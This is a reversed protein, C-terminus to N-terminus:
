RRRRGGSSPLSHCGSSYCGDTGIYMGVNSDHLTVNVASNSNHCSLQCSVGTIGMKNHTSPIARANGYDPGYVGDVGGVPHCQNCGFSGTTNRTNPLAVTVAGSLEISEGLTRNVTYHSVTANKQRTADYTGYSLNLSTVLSNNHCSVCTRGPDSTDYVRSGGFVSGPYHQYVQTANFNNNVHCYDCSKPNMYGAPHKVPETGDGHCAWCAKSGIDSLVSTNTANSNLNSHASYNTFATKNVRRNQPPGNPESATSAHCKLCDPGGAESQSQNLKHVFIASTIDSPQDKGHCNKCRADSWDGAINISHNQFPIGDSSNAPVLGTLNLIEPPIPNLLNGKYNYNGSAASGKYHCNACWYGGTLSQNEANTGQILSSNGLRSANHLATKGHCYYCSSLQSTNDWYRPQSGNWLAGSYSNNSHLVPTQVLMAASFNPMGAGQHCSTCNVASTNTTAWTNDQQLYRVPHISDSVNLHCSSCATGTSNHRELNKITASGGSGHCNTCYTANPLPSLSAKYLTGNHIRGTSHCDKCTPNTTPYNASHNAITRNASDTFPFSSVGSHCNDCYPTTNQQIAMDNKTGYHSVSQDGGNAGNYVNSSAGDPDYASIIMGTTNHCAYCSSAAPTKISTGNWYHQTVNLITTNPTYNFNQGGQVHCDVCNYPTKYRTPHGSPEQGSGHCAWCKKNAAPLSTSAGSNLNKHIANSDNMASINVLAGAKPPTQGVNHCNTCNSGGSVGESVGHIFATMGANQNLSGGHCSFCGADTLDFGSHNKYPTSDRAGTPYNGYTANGTIEPPVNEPPNRTKNFELIMKSYNAAGQWHCQQCWTSSSDITQNVKNSANFKSPSGLTPNIYHKNPSHCQECPYQLGRDTYVYLYRIHMADSVADTDNQDNDVFKVSVNGTIGDTSNIHHTSNINKTYDYFVSKDLTDLLEYAKSTKNYIMLSTNEKHVQYAMGLMSSGNVPVGTTNIVMEYRNWVKEKIRLNVNDYNVTFVQSTRPGSLVAYLQLKYPTVSGNENLASAFSYNTLNKWGTNATIAGSSNLTVVAGSPKVINLYVNQPYTASAVTVSYDVSVNTYKLGSSNPNYYFSYNWSINGFHQANTASTTLMGELSGSGAPNGTTPDYSASVTGVAGGTATSSTWNGSPTSSFDSDYSLTPFTQDYNRGIRTENLQMYDNSPGEINSFPHSPDISGNGGLLEYSAFQYITPTYKWYDGWKTGNMPDNSHSQSYIKPPKTGALRQTTNDVNNTKHCDYCTAGTLKAGTFNGNYQVFQIPHISGGTGNMHCDWCTLTSNHNNYNTSNHCNLCTSSINSETFNPTVLNSDHLAGQRHCTSNGCSPTTNQSAHDSRVKNDEKAFPGYVTTENQHCYACYAKQGILAEMDLREKGYHSVSENDTSPTTASQNYTEISEGQAHCNTCYTVAPTNMTPAWWIHRQPQPASFNIGTSKNHCDLCKRPSSYNAPHTSVPIGTSNVINNQVLTDNVHCAWCIRSANTADSKNNLNSHIYDINSLNVVNEDLYIPAKGNIKHCDMCWRGGFVGTPVAHVDLKGNNSHCGKCAVDKPHSQNENYRTINVWTDSINHCTKCILTLNTTTPNPRTLGHPVTHCLTCSVNSNRTSHNHSKQNNIGALTDNANSVAANQTWNLVPAGEIDTTAHCNGSYGSTGRGCSPKDGLNTRDGTGYDFWNTASDYHCNLCFVAGGGSRNKWSIDATASTNAQTSNWNLKSWYTSALNGNGFMTSDPLTDGLRKFHIDLYQDPITGSKTEFFHEYGGHCNTCLDSSGAPVHPSTPHSNPATQHCKGWTVLVYTTSNLGSATDKVDIKIRIHDDMRPLTAVATMLSQNMNVTTTYLGDNANWDGFTGTDNLNKSGTFYTNNGVMASHYTWDSKDWHDFDTDNLTVQVTRGKMINGDDDLVFAYVNIVPEVQGSVASELRNFTPTTTKASMWWATYVKKDTFAIVKSPTGSAAAPVASFIIAGFILLVLLLKTKKWTKHLCEDGPTKVTM